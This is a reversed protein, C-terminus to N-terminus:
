LGLVAVGLPLLGALVRAVLMSTGMSVAGAAAAWCGFPCWDCPPPLLSPNPLLSGNMLAFFSFPLM